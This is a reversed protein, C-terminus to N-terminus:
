SLQDTNKVPQRTQQPQQPQQPQRPHNPCECRDCLPVNCSHPGNAQRAGCLHTAQQDCTPCTLRKHFDCYPPAGPCQIASRFRCRTARIHAAQNPTM